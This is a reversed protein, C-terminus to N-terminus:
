YYGIFNRFDEEGKLHRCLGRVQEKIVNKLLMKQGRFPVATGQRELLAELLKHRTDENLMGTKKELSVKERKTLMSFVVRDVAQPRFEEVLDFVLVPKEGQPSHLFSIKTNLGALVVERWVQRYLFGYGYNLLSNVLDRAGKRERGPFDPVDEALLIKILKWYIKAAEAEHGMLRSRVRELGDSDLTIKEVKDIVAEMAAIEEKLSSGFLSTGSRHRGYFKLLNVQNRVKGVIFCRALELACHGDQLAQLQLLGLTADGTVLNQLVCEPIGIGDSFFIPISNRGCHWIIDSSISVGKATVHVTELKELPFELIKVGSKKVVLCRSNKGIFTGPSKVVVERSVAELKRYRAKQRGVAADAKKVADEAAPVVPPGHSTLPPVFPPSREPKAPQEPQYREAVQDAVSIIWNERFNSDEQGFLRIPALLSKIETKNPKKNKKRCQYLLSDIITQRLFLNLRSGVGRPDMLKGYYNEFGEVKEDLRKFFKGPNQELNKRVLFRIRSEMRQLRSRDIMRRNGKFYIGMFVFGRLVEHFYFPQRNLQLKLVENLFYRASEFDKQVEERSAAMLTFNDAYRIYCCKKEALYADLPHLYINSLLPSIIGGQAVGFPTEEYSGKPNVVGIKLWMRVLRTIEPENVRKHLEALLVEHDMADFCRDIDACAAWTMKEAAIFHSIRNISKVAGKGQRYAYSVDLFVAEFIPNLLYKLAQQVIKDNITPLSLPRYEGPKNDKPIDIRQYPEPVYRSNQLDELLREINRNFDKEYFQVSVNDIGGASRKKQVIRWADLLASKTTLKQFISGENAM